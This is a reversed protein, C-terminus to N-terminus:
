LTELFGMMESEAHEDGVRRAAEIGREVISRAEATHGNTALLQGSQFYAAVYDPANEILTELKRLCAADDGESSYAMAVAYQLFVDDPDAVLLQELQERRTM